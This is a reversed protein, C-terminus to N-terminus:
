LAGGRRQATVRRFIYRLSMRVARAKQLKGLSPIPERVEDLVAPDAQGVVCGGQATKGQATFGPQEGAGISTGLTSDDHGGQDHALNLSM